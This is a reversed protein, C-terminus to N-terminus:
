PHLRREPDVGPELRQGVPVDLGAPRDDPLAQGFAIALAARRLTRTVAPRPAHAGREPPAPHLSGAPFPCPRAHPLPGVSRLLRTCPGPPSPARGRTPCPGWAGSSGPAPVRRSLLVTGDNRVPTTM